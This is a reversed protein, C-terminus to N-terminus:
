GKAPNGDLPQESPNEAATEGNSVDEYAVDVRLARLGSAGQLEELELDEIVPGIKGISQLYELYRRYEIADKDQSYVIAIKGPITLRQNTGKIHAKDIRKKIIAYRINYAGDVDFQKEDMRFRIALPSSHVLILSAIDLPINMSPKLEYMLQEIGCTVLLQWLRLNQLYVPAFEKNKVLAKGVYIHHEVGDTKYKEFYHPFMEQALVQQEEVYSGIRENILSVTDEYEKRRKYLIGLVPDINEKYKQVAAATVDTLSSIHKFVPYIEAKLFELIGVEDGAKLGVQIEQICNEIRYRLNDYIPLSHQDDAVNLVDKALELQEILDGSIAKNRETSSGKIDAQGFLPYVDEFTIEEVTDSRERLFTEAADYFRWSVSPHISTFRRQVIAELKNQYDDLSRKIAITFMPLLDELSKVVVSNLQGAEPAGLELIGITENNYQIPAILFSQIGQDLLDQMFPNDPRTMKPVDPAILPGHNTCIMNQSEGCMIDKMIVKESGSLLLSSSNNYGLSRISEEDKDVFAFGFKLGPVKLIVQLRSQIARVKVPDILAQKDLLDSKLQSLVQDSTLDFITILGFGNFDFTNPPIKEKWLEINDYNNVLLEVDEDSLHFDPNKLTMESFDANFFVRFYQMQGTQRNPIEFYIPKKYQVSVQYRVQLIFLCAMIYMEDKDANLFELEFDEGATKLINSFRWS